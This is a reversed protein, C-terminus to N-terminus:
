RSPGPHAEHPPLYLAAADAKVRAARIVAEPYRPFINTRLQHWTPGYIRTWEDAPMERRQAEVHDALRLLTPLKAPTIVALPCFLCTWVAAPCPSGPRGYPSNYFDRCAAAFVDREGGLLPKADAEDVGLEAAAQHDDTSLREVDAATLVTLRPAREVRRLAEAYADEVIGELFETSQTVSLYHEGAVRESQNIGAVSPIAGGFAEDLRRYFTKRLRRGKLDFTGEETSLGSSRLWADVVPPSVHRMRHMRLHISHLAIWLFPQDDRTAFSRSGSTIEIAREFIRGPSWEGAGAFRDSERGGGRQKEWAIIVERPGVRQVDDVRLSAIGEPVIGTELALLTRFAVLDTATPWLVRAAEKLRPAEALCTPYSGSLGLRRAVEQRSLPGETQLTWLLHPRSMATARSYPGGSAAEARAKEVRGEVATISARCARRLRAEDAKSYPPVPKYDRPGSVWPGELFRCVSDHLRGPHAEDYARLAPRLVEEISYHTCAGVLHESRLDAASGNFGASHLARIASRFHSTMSCASWRSKVGGNPSCMVVIGELLERALQPLPLNSFHHTAQGNPFRTRLGLPVEIIEAPM